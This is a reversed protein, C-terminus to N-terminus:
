FANGHLTRMENLEPQDMTRARFDELRHFTFYDADHANHSGDWGTRNVFIMDDGDYDMPLPWAWLALGLDVALNPHNHRIRQPEGARARQAIPALTVPAITAFIRTMTDM